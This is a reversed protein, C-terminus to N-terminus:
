GFEYGTTGNVPWDEPLREYSALIKEVVVYYNDMPNPNLQTHKQEAMAEMKIQALHNQLRHYYQAPNYLGDPHDLRIGQIKNEAVLKFVLQHTLSFVEPNEMRIGALENIDFFRRYNIEQSAVQWFALRYAQAELLRHLLDFSAPDDKTGNLIAVTQEIFNHVEPYNSCLEALRHKYIEKLGNRKDIYDTNTEWRTPLEGFSTILIKFEALSGQDGWHEELWDLRHNLIFPYTQPDIPCQHRYYMVNFDGHEADFVLKLEGNELVTGYHNGLLALLVKGRLEDKIPRWEIDFYHAYISVQGNELVDLWWINDNGGVGMHNPVLDMIQGMHYRQLVTVFRDFSEISGIEPNLSSHDVIDYGHPSGARAKLIPSAYCHSIGLQSLYPVLKTATDFTFDKNFQLRYTALPFAPPGQCLDKDREGQTSTM